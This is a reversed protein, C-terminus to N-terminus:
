QTFNLHSYPARDGHVARRYERLLELVRFDTRRDLKM